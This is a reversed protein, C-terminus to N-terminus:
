ESDAKGKETRRFAWRNALYLATGILVSILIPIGEKSYDVYTLLLVLLAISVVAVLSGLPLSFPAPGLKSRFVPLAGCTTGYGLLRTITAITLASLVSSQITLILMVTSIAITSVIPTRFRPSVRALIPPLLKDDAMAFLLRSGGLLGVNSNGLISIVVGAAIISGGMPGLFGTAADALPRESGALGPLTGICVIQVTVFILTIIALATLLGFPLSTRPDRLEGGPIVAIEFGVFAYIVVNLASGFAGFSPAGATAFNAPDIFFLGIVAFGLLPLLKAITLFNTLHKSERIGLINVVALGVVITSILVVRVAGSAAAPFFFAVYTILVNCNVAFTSVRAILTLWGVEFGLLPGFATKGYLYPGGTGPFRSGVEAFCLVILGLIGACVIFALISYPGLMAAAKSPLVFIGAGIVINITVAVLDWKGMGRVLKEDTVASGNATQEM